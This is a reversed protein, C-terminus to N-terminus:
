VFLCFKGLRFVREFAIRLCFGKIGQLPGHFGRGMGFRV